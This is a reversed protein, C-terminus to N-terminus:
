SVDWDDRTFNWVHSCTENGTVASKKQQQSLRQQNISDPFITPPPFASIFLVCCDDQKGRLDSVMASFLYILFIDRLWIFHETLVSLFLLVSIALHKQERELLLPLNYYYTLRVRIGKHRRKTVWSFLEGKRCLVEVSCCKTKSVSILSCILLDKFLPETESFPEVNICTWSICHHWSQPAM